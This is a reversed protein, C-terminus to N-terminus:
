IFYQDIYSTFILLSSSLLLYFLIKENNKLNVISSIRYSILLLFIKNLLIIFLNLFRVIGITEIGTIKWLVAPHFNGFVGTYLLHSGYSM